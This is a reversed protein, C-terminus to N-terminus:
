CRFGDNSYERVSDDTCHREFIHNRKTFFVSLVNGWYYCEASLCANQCSFDCEVLIGVGAAHEPQEQLNIFHFSELRLILSVKLSDM